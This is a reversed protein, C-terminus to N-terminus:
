AAELEQKGEEVVVHITRPEKSCLEEEERLSLVGQNWCEQNEVSFSAEQVLGAQQHLHPGRENRGDRIQTGLQAKIRRIFM